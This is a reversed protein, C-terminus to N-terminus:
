GMVPSGPGAAALNTKNEAVELICKPHSTLLASTPCFFPFFMKWETSGCAGLEFLDQGAAVASSYTSSFM